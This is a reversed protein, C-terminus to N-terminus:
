RAGRRALLRRSAATFEDRAVRLRSYATNLPIGLSSAIEAMPCEDLEHLIFVGRRDIDIAELAQAILAHAQREVLAEDAGLAPAVPEAPHDMVEVRHRALRRYDSAFRFAFAFLWPRIPRARDYRDLRAYVEIFVEHTVDELDRAQVGLRRLSTWVYDFEADFMARFARQQPDDRRGAQEGAAVMGSAQSSGGAKTM